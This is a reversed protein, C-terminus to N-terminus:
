EGKPVVVLFEHENQHCPTIAYISGCKDCEVLFTNMTLKNGCACAIEFPHDLKDNSFGKEKVVNVVAQSTELECKNVCESM